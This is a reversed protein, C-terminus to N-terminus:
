NFYKATIQKYEESERVLAITDWINEAIKPNEEVFQHSLMLYYPKSKLPLQMKEINGFEKKNIDLISDGASELAAVGDIRGKYLKKFNIMTSTSEEIKIGMKRLDDVISFGRPAGIARELNGIRKGDWTVISSKLTYLVYTNSYSKRNKDVTGEKMPYVGFELRETKFSANFLGDIKGNELNDLGRKWPLRIFKIEIKIKKAALMILEVAIGPKESDIESGNGTQFPFNSTNQYAFTLKLSEAHIDYAFLISILVFIVGILKVKTNM